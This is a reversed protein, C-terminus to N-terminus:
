CSKLWKGLNTLIYMLPYSTYILVILLLNQPLTMPTSHTVNNITIIPQIELLEPLLFVAFVALSLMTFFLISRRTNLPRSVSYLVMFSLATATLGILTSIGSHQNSGMGVDLGLTHAVSYIILANLLVVIAGPLADKIIKALFNGEIRNNNYELAIFFSPVGIVLIEMILLHSPKLPYLAEYGM